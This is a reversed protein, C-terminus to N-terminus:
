RIFRFFHDHIGIVNITQCAADRSIQQAAAPPRCKNAADHAHQQCIDCHTHDVPILSDVLFQHQAACTRQIYHHDATQQRYQQRFQETTNLKIAEVLGDTFTACDVMVINYDPHNKAIELKIANLLHTKGLGSNGYIFLPNYAGSPNAAVAQAAAFAFQNSSGKIFNEFTLAYTGAKLVPAEEEQPEAPAKDPIVVEIEVDFALVAEFAAHLLPMYRNNVAEQVLTNNTALVVRSSNEFLVPELKDIYLNYAPLVMNDKCYLKVADFVEKFSDM